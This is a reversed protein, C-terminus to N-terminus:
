ISIWTLWQKANNCCFWFPIGVWTLMFNNWCCKITASPIFNCYHEALLLSNCVPMQSTVYARSRAAFCVTGYSLVCVRHFMSSWTNRDITAYIGGSLRLSAWSMSVISCAKGEGGNLPVWQPAMIHMDDDYWREEGQLHLCCPGGFCQYGEISSCPVVVWLVVNLVRQTSHVESENHKFKNASCNIGSLLLSSWRHHSGEQANSQGTTRSKTKYHDVYELSVQHKLYSYIPCWRRLFPKDNWISSDSYTWSFQREEETHNPLQKRLM